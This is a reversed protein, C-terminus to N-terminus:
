RAVFYEVQSFDQTDRKMFDVFKSNQLVPDNLPLNNLAYDAAKIYFQRVATCFLRVDAEGDDELHNLLQRTSM